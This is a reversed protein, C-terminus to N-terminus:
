ANNNGKQTHGMEDGALLMPIRNFVQLLFHMLRIKRRLIELIEEDVTIGRFGAFSRINLIIGM